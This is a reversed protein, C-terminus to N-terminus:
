CEPYIRIEQCCVVSCSSFYTFLFIRTKLITKNKTQLFFLIMMIKTQSFHRKYQILFEQYSWKKYGM